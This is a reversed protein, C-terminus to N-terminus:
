PCGALFANVFCDIDDINITGNGDCDAAALDGALFGAVFCDIDDVNLAGSADCDALCTSGTSAFEYAGIDIVPVKGLGTDVTLPDDLRRPNSDLDVPVLEIFDGDDDLDTVDTPLAANDGADIAPSGPGLRYNELGVDAFMPDASFNGIGPWGGEVLCNALVANGFDDPSSNAWSVCNAVLGPATRDFMRIAGGEPSSNNTFTCSIVKTSSGTSSFLAGGRLSASNAAFLCNVFTLRDRSGGLYAGGVATISQNEIFRCGAVSSENTQQDVSLAGGGPTFAENRVFDTRKISTRTLTIFVAGGWPASNNEFLCDHIILSLAASAYIAGGNQGAQNDQFICRDIIVDSANDIGIAGGFDLAFLGSFVCQRITVGSANEVRVGTGLSNATTAPTTSRFTFGSIVTSPTEQNTVSIIPPGNVEIEDLVTAAVIIPDSPDQSRLTFAKGATSLSVVYIGPTVIVESDPHSVTADIADQITLFDGSGSPDVLFMSQARALYDGIPILMCAIAILARSLNDHRM